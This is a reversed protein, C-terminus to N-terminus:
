RSLAESDEVPLVAGVNTAGASGAGAVAAPSMRMSIFRLAVLTFMAQGADAASPRAAQSRSNSRHDADSRRPHAGYAHPSGGSERPDLGCGIDNIM